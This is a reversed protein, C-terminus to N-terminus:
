YVSWIWRKTLKSLRKGILVDDQNSAHTVRKFSEIYYEDGYLLHNFKRLRNVVEICLSFSLLEGQWVGFEGLVVIVRFMRLKSKRYNRNLPDARYCILGLWRRKSRLYLMIYYTCGDSSRKAILVPYVFRFAIKRNSGKARNGGIRWRPNIDDTSRRSEKRYYIIGLSGTTTPYRNNNSESNFPRNIRSPTIKKHVIRAKM